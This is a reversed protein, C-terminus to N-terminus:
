ELIIILLTEKRKWVLFHVPKSLLLVIMWDVTRGVKVHGLQAGLRWM